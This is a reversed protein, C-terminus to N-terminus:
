DSIFQGKSMLGSLIPCARVNGESQRGEGEGETIPLVSRHKSKLIQLGGGDKLPSYHTSDM